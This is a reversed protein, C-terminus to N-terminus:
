KIEIIRPSNVKQKKIRVELVGDVLSAEINELDATNGPSMFKEFVPTPGNINLFDEFPDFFDSSPGPNPGFVQNLLSEYKM